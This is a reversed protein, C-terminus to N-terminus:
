HGSGEVVRVVESRPDASADHEVLLTGSAFNLDAAIVGPIRAV